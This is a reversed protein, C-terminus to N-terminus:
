LHKKEYWAVGEGIDIGNTVKKLTIGVPYESYWLSYAESTETYTGGAVYDTTILSFTGTNPKTLDERFILYNETPNNPDEFRLEPSAPHHVCGSAMVAVLFLLVILTKM